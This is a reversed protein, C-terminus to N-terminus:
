LRINLDIALQFPQRESTYGVQTNNFWTAYPYKVQLPPNALFNGSPALINSPLNSYICTNPDDWAYGRQFCKNYVNNAILTLSMRPNLDYHMQLNLTFQSPERLSGLSDFRNGTYPDPLFIAGTSGGNCSIGPTDPTTAPDATCSQPVYGPYVLPSGYLSGNNYTMTPTISFRGRKYNLILSAVDPTEFGNAANFPSPIVDYPTYSGNRDLLPQAARNYYPNGITDGNADALTAAANGAFLGSGCQQWNPSTASANACASTYSNYQEIYNNLTDIVSAGNAVPAYKVKSDTHTYSLQYSLGDSAFDGGQLSFEVGKSVQSGVNVGALTGQLANIALYQLQNKTSRYFPTIKFSLPTGKIHREFSFDYNQSTDPRVDHNPTTYGFAYFQSIFSALDQQRTNYQQYSTAAPRAYKGASARIVTDPNLSWTFALRPQVVNTSTTGGGV